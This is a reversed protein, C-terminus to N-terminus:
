LDTEVIVQKFRPPNNFKDKDKALEDLIILFFGM